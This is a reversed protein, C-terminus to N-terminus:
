PNRLLDAAVTEAVRRWTRHETADGQRPGCHCVGVHHGPAVVALGLHVRANRVAHPAGDVESGDPAEFRWTWTTM